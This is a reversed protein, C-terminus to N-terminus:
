FTQGGSKNLKAAIFVAILGVAQTKVGAPSSLAATLTGASAETGLFVIAIFAMSAFLCFKEFSHARM